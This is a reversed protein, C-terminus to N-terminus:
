CVDLSVYSNITYISVTMYKHANTPAMITYILIICIDHIVYFKLSLKQKMCVSSFYFYDAVHLTVELLVWLVLRIHSTVCM